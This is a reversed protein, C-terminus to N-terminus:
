RITTAKKATKHTAALYRNQVVSGPAEQLWMGSDSPSPEIEILEGEGIQESSPAEPPRTELYPRIWAPPPAVPKAPPPKRVVEPKNQNKTPEVDTPSAQGAGQLSRNLISESHPVGPTLQLFQARQHVSEPPHNVYDAAYPYLLGQSPYRSSPHRHAVISFRADHHSHYSHHSWGVGWYRGITNAMPFGYDVAQATAGHMALGLAIVKVLKNYM